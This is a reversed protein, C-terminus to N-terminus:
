CPPQEVQRVALPPSLRRCPTLLQKGRTHASERSIVAFSAWEPQWDKAVLHDIVQNLLVVGTRVSKLYDLPLDKQKRKVGTTRFATEMADDVAKAGLLKGLKTEVVAVYSLFMFLQARQFSESQSSTVLTNNVERAFPMLIDPDGIKKSQHQSKFFTRLEGIGTGGMDVPADLFSAVAGGQKSRREQKDRREEKFDPPRQEHTYIVFDM